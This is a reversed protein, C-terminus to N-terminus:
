LHWQLRCKADPPCHSPMPQAGHLPRTGGPGRLSVVGLRFTVCPTGGGGELADRAQGRSRGGGVVEQAHKESERTPICFCEIRTGRVQPHDCLDVDAAEPAPSLGGFQTQIRGWIRDREAQDLNADNATIKTVTPRGQCENYKVDDPPCFPSAGTCVEEADCFGASPRCVTGAPKYAAATPCGIASGTCM